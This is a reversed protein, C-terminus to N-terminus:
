KPIDILPVQVFRIRKRNWTYTLLLSGDHAEILAPYSFEGPGSELTRFDTFHEGDRSVALNLPTRGRTAHNYVLVIRGDRLAVADIGSNPNPLDLARANSWNVGNDNSDAVCIRGIQSTARAYLRLKTGGLPIVSPQIIGFTKSWDFADGFHDSHGHSILMYDFKDIKKKDAPTAPNGTVWPDLILTKGGPTVVLFTAHGLWTIKIGNLNM